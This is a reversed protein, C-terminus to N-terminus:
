YDLRKRSNKLLSASVAVLLMFLYGYSLHCWKYKYKWGDLSRESVSDFRVDSIHFLSSNTDYLNTFMLASNLMLDCRTVSSKVSDNKALMDQLTVFSPFNYPFLHCWLAFTFCCMNGRHRWGKEAHYHAELSNVRTHATIIFHLICKLDCDVRCM